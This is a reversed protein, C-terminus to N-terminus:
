KRRKWMAELKNTIYEMGIYIAAAIVGSDLARVSTMDISYRDLIVVGVVALAWALFAPIKFNKMEAERTRGVRSGKLFFRSAYVGGVPPIVLGLFVLFDILNDLIGAVAVLTGIIGAFVTIAWDKVRSIINAIGLSASYLNNINTTWTAFVLIIIAIAGLGHDTLNAIIDKSGTVLVPLGALILVFPSGFGYSIVAAKVSTLRSRSFRAMDPLITIGVMFGSVLVSVAQGISLTAPSELAQLQVVENIDLTSLINGASVVLLILLLPVVMRSLWDIGRFGFITTVIMLMSGAILFIEESHEQGTINELIAVCAMSFVHVTVGYWGLLTLSLIANVIKAGRLGFAGQIITYTSLRSTSGVFMTICALITLIFGGVVLAILGDSAGLAGM